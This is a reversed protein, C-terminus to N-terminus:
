IRLHYDRMFFKRGNYMTSKILKQRILSDVVQYDAKNKELLEMLSDERLPHVTTINLIDEYINGTFGAHTGEFITLFETKINRADFIQWAANLKEEGPSKVYREAPPRIPTALFAKDPNINKIIEGLGSFNELTDNIGDILMTETLLGGNYDISFHIISDIHKEFDLAPSPRNIKQWTTNDHADMKLSILDATYIDDRVAEDSLLSANTIVAIPINFHKLKKITKGLNIDLTPEGNSVITLYDPYNQNSLKQLHKRVEECIMEPQFYVERKISKKSTKGVQCYICGYTCIKPSIINNIGLSNGLRRSPIPGFSIM